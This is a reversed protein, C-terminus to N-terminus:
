QGCVQNEKKLYFHSNVPNSPEYCVKGEVGKRHTVVSGNEAYSSSAHTKGDVTFEFLVYKYHDTSGTRRTEKYDTIIGVAEASRKRRPGEVSELLEKNRRDASMLGWIVLGLVIAAVTLAALVICGILIPKTKNGAM